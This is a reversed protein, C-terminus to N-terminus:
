TDSGHHEKVGRHKRLYYCNSFSEAVSAALQQCNGPMLNALFVPGVELKRILPMPLKYARGGTFPSLRRM